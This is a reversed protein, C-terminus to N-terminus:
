LCWASRMNGKQETGPGVESALAGERFCLGMVVTPELWEMQRLSLYALIIM